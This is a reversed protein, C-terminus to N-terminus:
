HPLLPVLEARLGSDDIHLIALTVPLKFRRPGASGPNLYLVGERTALEAKHSHGSVVVDLEHTHPNLALDQLRHLMYIRAKGVEVLLVAPFAEAWEGKDVNGRVARLPAIAELRLALDLSGIDGAHLILDVGQLAQVAQPRLLNHTDAIVGVRVM